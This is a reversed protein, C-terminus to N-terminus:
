FVTLGHIIDEDLSIFEILKTIAVERTVQDSVICHLGAAQAEVLTVPLGEYISPFLFVDIGANSWACWKKGRYINIKDAIKLKEAKEKYQNSNNGGGVLIM